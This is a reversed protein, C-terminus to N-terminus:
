MLEKIKMKESEEFSSEWMKGYERNMTEIDTITLKCGKGDLYAMYMKMHLKDIKSLNTM